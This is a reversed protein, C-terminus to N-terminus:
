SDLDVTNHKLYPVVILQLFNSRLFSLISTRASPSAIGYTMVGQMRLALPIAQRHIIGDLRIICRVCTTLFVGSSGM